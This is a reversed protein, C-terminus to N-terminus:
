GMLVRSPNFNIGSMIQVWDVITPAHSLLRTPTVHARLNIHMFSERTLKNIPLLLCYKHYSFFLFIKFSFHNKQMQFLFKPTLYKKLRTCM